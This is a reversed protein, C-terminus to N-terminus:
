CSGPCAKKLKCLKCKCKRQCSLTLADRHLEKSNRLHPSTLHADVSARAQGLVLAAGGACPAQFALGLLAVVLLLLLFCCCSVVFAVIIHWMGSGNHSIQRPQCIETVPGAPM